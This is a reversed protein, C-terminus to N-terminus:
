IRRWRGSGNVGYQPPPSIGSTLYLSTTGFRRVAFRREVQDIQLCSTYMGGVPSQAITRRFGSHEDLRDPAGPPAAPYRALFLGDDRILAFQQGEAYALTAFFRFFNSPLVSIELVGVFDGDSSM